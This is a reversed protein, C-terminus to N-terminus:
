QCNRPLPGAKTLRRESAQAGLSIHWAGCAQAAGPKWFYSSPVAALTGAEKDEVM